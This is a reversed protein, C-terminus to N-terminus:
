HVPRAGHSYSSSKLAGGKRWPLIFERERAPLRVDDVKIHLHDQRVSVECVRNEVVDLGCFGKASLHM